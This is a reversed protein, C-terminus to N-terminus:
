CLEISEFFGNNLPLRNHNLYELFQESYNGGKEVFWYLEQFTKIIM